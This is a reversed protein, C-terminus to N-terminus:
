GRSCNERLVKKRELCMAHGKPSSNIPLCLSTHLNRSYLYFSQPEWNQIFILEHDGLCKPVWMNGSASVRTRNQQFTNLSEFIGTRPKVPNQNNPLPKTVSDKFTIDLWSCLISVKKLGNGTNPYIIVLTIETTSFGWNCM